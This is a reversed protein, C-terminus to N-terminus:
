TAVRQMCARYRSDVRGAFWETTLPRTIKASQLAIDPVIARPAPKGGAEDALAFVRVYLPTREFSESKERLLDRRIDDNGFGIRKGLVRVALETSSPERAPKGAEYHMLDGDLALPVGSAQTVANQFAANRSAYRGANFDAFRYLMRPYSAPYDLLHAVGFYVGGRRSFVEHRISDAVPYPYPNEAAFAEAFAVSVQMPGGTKVPNRDAFLSKGFPVRGIFDEYLESLQQETKVSDLRDGYTKGNASPLALAADLALKPVGAAERRRDLEKRAIGGLGPVAPDAQFSSEQGIIAVAACINDPAPRLDLSAFAAYIDTAWGTRDKVGEPLARAVLARGEEATLPRGGPGAPGEIGACAALVGLPATVLLRRLGALPDRMACINGRAARRM